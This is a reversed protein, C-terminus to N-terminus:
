GLSRRSFYQCSINLNDTIKFGSLLLESTIDIFEPAKFLCIHVFGGGNRTINAHNYKYHNCILCSNCALPEDEIIWDYIVNSGRSNIKTLTAKITGETKFMKM